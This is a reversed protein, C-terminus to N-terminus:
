RVSLGAPSKAVAVNTAAPEPAPENLLPVLVENLEDLTFAGAKAYRVVGARDIVYNTPYAEVQRYPGSFDRAMDFGVLAAIPKLKSMPVSDESTVGLVRLGVMRRQDYYIAILPLEQRCPACWTAWFNLILVKGQYDALTVTRGDFTTAKFPPAPKGVVIKAAQAAPALAIAASSIIAVLATIPRM